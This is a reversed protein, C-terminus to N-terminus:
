RMASRATPRLRMRQPAGTLRNEVLPLDVAALGAGAGAEPFRAFWVFVNEGSRVPLRPFTNEAHETVFRAVPRAGAEALAPAVVEAFFAPFGDGVPYVTAVYEAAPLASAGVGPRDAAPPETLARLLLVDDSDVLTANAAERHALWVPGTYFAELAARRAEMDPFSRLWTFTDPADPDRFTGSVRMGAAEQAEVFEREFLTILEDRRGPLLTYRRLEHITM